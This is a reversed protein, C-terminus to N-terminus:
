QEWQQDDYEVRNLIDDSDGKVWQKQKKKEHKIYWVNWM